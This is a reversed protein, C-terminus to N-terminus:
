RHCVQMSRFKCPDFGPDKGGVLQSWPELKSPYLTTADGRVQWVVANLHLSKAGDMLEIIRAKATDANFNAGARGTWDFRTVWAARFEPRNLFPRRWEILGNVDTPMHQTASTAGGLKGAATPWVTGEPPPPTRPARQLRPNTEGTATTNTGPRETQLTAPEPAATTSQQAVAIAAMLVLISSFAFTSFTKM